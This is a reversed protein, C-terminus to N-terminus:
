FDNNKCFERYIFSRLPYRGKRKQDCRQTRLTCFTKILHHSPGAMRVKPYKKTGLNVMPEIAIVLGEKLLAGQGRKGFNSVEPDEHLNRGLGHGVLERVVGYRHKVEAHQQIAFGIDGVRKGASAEAIGLYLSEKTVQCLKIVDPDADKGIFTFAVDGYFGNMLVGCDVSFIDTSEFPRDNPLGHVVQENVSICLTAPFGRYGKFGPVAGHDRIFEEAIKDLQNGTQGERIHKSM